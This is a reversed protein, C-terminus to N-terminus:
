MRVDYSVEVVAVRSMTNDSGYEFMRTVVVAVVAIFCFKVVSCADHRAVWQTCTTTNDDPFRIIRPMVFKLTYLHLYPLSYLKFVM